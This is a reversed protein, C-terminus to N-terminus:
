GPLLRKLEMQLLSVIFAQMIQVRGSPQVGKEASGVYSCGSAWHIPLAGAQRLIGDLIGVHHTQANVLIKQPLRKSMLSFQWPLSKLTVIIEKTPRQHCLQKPELYDVWLWIKGWLEETSLKEFHWNQWFCTNHTSPICVTYYYFYYMKYCISSLIHLFSFGGVSKVPICIPAAEISFLISIGWFVLLLTAVHDLLKAGPCILVGTSCLLVLESEM